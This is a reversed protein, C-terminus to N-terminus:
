DIEEFREWFTVSKQKGAGWKVLLMLNIMGLSSNPDLRTIQQIRKLRKTVTNRHVALRKSTEHILMDCKIFTKLTSFIEPNQTLKNLYHDFYIEREEYTFNEIIDIPALDNIYVRNARSIIGKTKSSCALSLRLSAIFESVSNSAFGVYISYTSVEQRIENELWSTWDQQTQPHTILIVNNNLIHVHEQSIHNLIRSMVNRMAEVYSHENLTLKVVAHELPTNVEFELRQLRDLIESHQDHKLLDHLLASRLNSKINNEITQFSQETLLEAALLALRIYKDIIVPQGDVKMVGVLQRKHYIPESIGAQVYGDDSLYPQSIVVRAGTKIVECSTKDVKGILTADGSFVITGHKDSISVNHYIISMSRTGIQEALHKDINM